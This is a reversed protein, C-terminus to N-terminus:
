KRNVAPAKPERPTPSAPPALHPVGLLRCADRLAGVNAPMRGDAALRRCARVVAGLTALTETLAPLGQATAMADVPALAAARSAARAARAPATQPPAAPHAPDALGLPSPSAHLTRAQEHRRAPRTIPPLTITLPAAPDAHQLAAGVTLFLHRIRAAGLHQAVARAPEPLRLQFNTGATGLTPESHSGPKRGRPTGPSGYPNPLNARRAARHLSAPDIGPFAGAVMRISTCPNARLEALARAMPSDPARRRGDVWGSGPALRAAREAARRAKSPPQAAGNGARTDPRSPDATRPILKTM